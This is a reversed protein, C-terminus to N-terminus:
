RTQLFRACFNSQNWANRNAISFIAVAIMFLPVIFPMTESSVVL